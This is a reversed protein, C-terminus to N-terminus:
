RKAQQDGFWARRFWFYLRDRVTQKSDPFIAGWPTSWLLHIRPVAWAGWRRVRRDLKQAKRFESLLDVDTLGSKCFFREFVKMNFDLVYKHVHKRDEMIPNDFCELAIEYSPFYFLREDNAESHFEDLASRLIAKSAANAILSPVNRFTATLAIPSLTTVIYADPRHQRILNHIRRINALNEAQTTVRFKHRTADYKEYPIARWFVEGTPEDYWVESLGFTLIFVDASDFLRKTRKRVREDYGLEAANYDHWLANQPMKGEWAWEFQQLIAYTNVIGDGMKSVYATDDKRTAVNYNIGALYHGIHSAFCSGFAVIPTESSIVPTAPMLSKVVYQTLVDDHKFTDDNPHFQTSAGRFFTYNTKRKQGGIEYHVKKTKVDVTLQPGDTMEKECGLGHTTRGCNAFSGTSSANEAVPVVALRRALDTAVDDFVDLWHRNAKRYLRAAPYWDTTQGVFPWMLHDKDDLLVFVPVDLAGAIHAGTNSITVVADLAGVQAAFLDLNTLSDVTEDHVVRAGSSARLTQIDARADGYQVSVFTAKVRRLLGAWDELAPLDKKENTSHWCIGILPDGSQYKHRFAAVQDKDPKLPPLTAITGDDKLGVFEILTEYSAMVDAQAHAEADRLGAEWVEMTPFSRRFLPVLRSEALVICRKARPVALALLRSFRLVNGVHKNRSVVVLTRGTLDSGDWEPLPSVPELGRMGAAMLNASYRYDKLRELMGGTKRALAFREKALADSGVQRALAIAAQWEGRAV